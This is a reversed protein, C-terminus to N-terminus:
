WGLTRYDLGSIAGLGICVGILMLRVVADAKSLLPNSTLRWRRMLMATAFTTYSIFVTLALTGAVFVVYM